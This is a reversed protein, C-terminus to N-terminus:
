AKGEISKPYSDKDGGVDEEGEGLLQELEIDAEEETKHLLDKFERYKKIVKLISKYREGLKEADIYKIRITMYVNFGDTTPEASFSHECIIGREELRQMAYDAYHSIGYVWRRVYTLLTRQIMADPIDNWPILKKSFTKGHIKYTRSVENPIINVENDKSGKMNQSLNISERGM